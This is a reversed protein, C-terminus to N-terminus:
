EWEEKILSSKWKVTPSPAQQRLEECDKQGEGLSGKQEPPHLSEGVDIILCGTTVRAPVHGSSKERFVQREASTM